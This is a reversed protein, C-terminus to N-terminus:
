SPRHRTACGAVLCVEARGREDSYQLDGELVRVVLPEVSGTTVPRGAASSATSTKARGTLPVSALVTDVSSILIQAPPVSSASTQMGTLNGDTSARGWSYGVNGGIDFGTWDYVVAAVVPAKTYRPALDAAFASSASLIAVAVAGGVFIQKM